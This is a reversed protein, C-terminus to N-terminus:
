KNSDRKFKIPRLVVFWAVLFALAVFILSYMAPWMKLYLITIYKPLSVFLYAILIVFFARKKNSFKLIKFSALTSLSIAVIMKILEFFLGVGSVYPSGPYNQDLPIFYLPSEYFIYILQSFIYNIISLSLFFIPLVLIYKYTRKFFNIM